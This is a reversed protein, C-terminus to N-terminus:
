RSEEGCSLRRASVHTGSEVGEVRLTKGTLNADQSVIDVVVQGLELGTVSFPVSVMYPFVALQSGASERAQARTGATPRIRCPGPEGAVAGEYIVTETTTETQTVPDWVPAGREVIRCLDTMMSEARERGRVAAADILVV